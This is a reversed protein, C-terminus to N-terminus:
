FTRGSHNPLLDLAGTSVGFPAILILGYNQGPVFPHLPNGRSRRLQLILSHPVLNAHTPGNHPLPLVNFHLAVNGSSPFSPFEQSLVIWVLAVLISMRKPSQPTLPPRGSHRGAPASDSSKAAQWSPSSYYLSSIVRPVASLGTTSSSLSSLSRTISLLTPRGM